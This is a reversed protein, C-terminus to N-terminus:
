IEIVCLEEAKSGRWLNRYELPSMETYQQFIRCFYQSSNFGTQMAIETVTYSTFWLLEKAKGIRLSNIYHQCSTGTEQVFCKRIYRSSIDFMHALNEINLSLEYNENIYQIVEAIKGAKGHRERVKQKEEIKVSLEIFLQFFGLKLQTHRHEGDVRNIRCLSEMLYSTMECNTLKHYKQKRQLFVMRRELEEPAQVSFELQTISCKERSDVIFSHPLGAYIIICDGKKLPLFSDEVGVICHGSRIYNIEIEKHNHNEFRYASPFRFVGSNRVQM